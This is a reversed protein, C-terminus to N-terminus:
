TCGGHLVRLYHLLVALPMTGHWLKGAAKFTGGADRWAQMLEADSPVEPLPGADHWHVYGCRDHGSTPVVRAVAASVTHKDKSLERRYYDAWMGSVVGDEDYFEIPPRDTRRAVVAIWDPRDIRAVACYANSTKRYGRAILEEAPMDTTVTLGQKTKDRVGTTM